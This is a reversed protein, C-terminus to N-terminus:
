NNRYSNIIIKYKEDEKLSKYYLANQKDFFKLVKYETLNRIYFPIFLHVVYLKALSNLLYTTLQNDVIIPLNDIVLFFSSTNDRSDETNLDLLAEWSPQSHPYDITDDYSFLIVKDKTIIDNIIKTKNYSNGIYLTM